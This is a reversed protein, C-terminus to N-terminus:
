QLIDEVQKITDRSNKLSGRFYFSSKEIIIIYDTVELNEGLVLSDAASVPFAVIRVNNPKDQGEFPLKLKYAIYKMFAQPTELLEYGEETGIFAMIIVPDGNGPQIDAGVTAWMLYDFKSDSKEDKQIKINSICVGEAQSDKDMFVSAYQNIVAECFSENVYGDEDFIDSGSANLDDISREPSLDEMAAQDDGGAMSVVAGAAMLIFILMIFTIKKAM